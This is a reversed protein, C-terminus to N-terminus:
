NIEFIKNTLKYYNAETGQNFRNKNNYKEIYCLKILEKIIRNITQRSLSLNKELKSLSIHISFNNQSAFFLLVLKQTCSLNLIFIYNNPNSFFTQKVNEPIDTKIRPLAESNTAIKLPRNELKGKREM